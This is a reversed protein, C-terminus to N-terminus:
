SRFLGKLFDWFHWHRGPCEVWDSPAFSITDTNKDVMVPVPDAKPYELRIFTSDGCSQAVAIRANKPNAHPSNPGWDEMFKSFSYDRCPTQETCGWMRYAEQYQHNELRQLFVKVEQEQHRNKFIAYLFLAVIVVCVTAIVGRKLRKRNGAKREEIAAYSELYSAM